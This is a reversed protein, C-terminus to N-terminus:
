GFRNTVSDRPCNGMITGGMLHMGVRGGAWAETAGAARFVALGEKRAAASLKDTAAITNHITHALPLGLHDLNKSLTIRNSLQPIDEAVCVMTAFHRAAKEMYRELAAGYIDARASAFGLLDNPKVANAILWQYSGIAGNAGAKNDYHDQNLLQGGAPGQHPLTHNKFLGNVTQAPHTMLYKGVMGHRNGLGQQHRNSGSLLLLRANQVAFAALVVVKAPQWQRQGNADFYEVGTVSDGAANSQVKSVTSRHRIKAGAQLASRLYVVLPNALAGNPCGADCWGDYLCSNRGKYPISNIAMPLPATHMGMATFGRAIINGQAFVPLAPMPYKQGPPRWKEATEDGSIGVEMQIKDYYPQLERYSLPWDNGVGHDSKLTFDCEHLRPWVGYHHMASGGTGFGSNFANSIKVNGEEEVVAGGWKLQRSWIQSSTLDRLSREPGAELILVRKGAEAAKAAYLSGAAGSGVILLDVEEHASSLQPLELM